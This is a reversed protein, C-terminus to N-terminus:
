KLVLKASFTHPSLVGHLSFDRALNKPNTERSNKEKAKISLVMYIACSMVPLVPGYLLNSHNDCFSLTIFIKLFPYLLCPLFLYLLYLLMLCQCFSFSFHLSSKVM